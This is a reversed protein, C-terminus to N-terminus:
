GCPLGAPARAVADIRVTEHGVIERPLPPPLGNFRAGEVAPSQGADDTNTVILWHGAVCRAPAPGAGAVASSRMAGLSYQPASAAVCREGACVREATWRLSTAPAGDIWRAPGQAAAPCASRLRHLAAGREAAATGAEVKAMAPVPAAVRCLPRGQGDVLLWWARERKMPPLAGTATITNPDSREVMRLLLWRAGHHGIPEMALSYGQAPTAASPSAAGLAWVAGLAALAGSLGHGRAHM